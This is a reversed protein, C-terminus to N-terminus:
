NMGFVREHEKGPGYVSVFVWVESEWKNKVWMVRSSVEKWETVCENMRDSLLLAVGEKARGNVIGSIRGKVNGFMSEGQGKMKTESLALVDLKRREFLEGIECRKGVSTSCSM